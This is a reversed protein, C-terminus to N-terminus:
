HRDELRALMKEDFVERSILDDSEMAMREGDWLFRRRRMEILYPRYAYDRRAEVGTLVMGPRGRADRVLDLAAHYTSAYDARGGGDSRLLEEDWVSRYGDPFSRILRGRITISLLSPM